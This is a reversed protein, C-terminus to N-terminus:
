YCCLFTWISITSKIWCYRFSYISICITYGYDKINWTVNNFDFLMYLGILFGILLNAGGTIIGSIVSVITSPLDVTVSKGINNITDYLGLKVDTLDYGTVETLNVFIGDISEKLYNLFSPASAILDNLQDYVTPIMLSLILYVVAIFIVYVFIAGLTRNVGKKHLRKVIPDFLWAIIIGIFLPSLISLFSGIFPFVQWEAFLRTVVYILIVVALVLFIKLLTAGTQIGENLKQYDIGESKSKKRFM